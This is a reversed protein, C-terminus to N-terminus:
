FAIGIGVGIGIGIGIGLQLEMEMELNWIGFDMEMELETKFGFKSYSSSKALKGGWNKRYNSNSIKMKSGGMKRKGNELEWFGLNRNFHFKLEM